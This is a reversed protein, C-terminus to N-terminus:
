QLENHWLKELAYLARADEQMIHVVVDIFDVIIWEGIEKGEILPSLSGLQKQEECLHEALAQVHRKSTGTCIIMYDTFQCSEKVNLSTITNAKHKDLCNIINEIVKKYV